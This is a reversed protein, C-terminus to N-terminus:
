RIWGTPSITIIASAPSGGPAIPIRLDALSDAFVTQRSLRSPTVPHATAGRDIVIIRSM